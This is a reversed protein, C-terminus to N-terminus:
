NTLLENPTLPRYACALDLRRLECACALHLTPDSITDPRDRKNCRAVIDHWSARVRSICTPDSITERHSSIDPCSARVRSICPPRHASDSLRRLRSIRFRSACKQQHKRPPTSRRGPPPQFRAPSSSAIDQVQVLVRGWFEPNLTPPRFTAVAAQASGGKRRTCKEAFCIRM